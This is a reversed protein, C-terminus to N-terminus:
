RRSADKGSCIKKYAGQALRFVVAYKLKEVDGPFIRDQGGVESLKLIIDDTPPIRTDCISILADALRFDASVRADPDGNILMECADSLTHYNDAFFSEGETRCGYLCLERYIGDLRRKMRKATKSLKRVAITEGM